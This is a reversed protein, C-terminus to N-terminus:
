CGHILLFRNACCVHVGDAAVILDKKRETGDVFEIIGTDADVDAVEASLTIKAPRTKGDPEEAIRRLENHLDVRHFYWQEDGYKQVFDPLETEIVTELSDGKLIDTKKSIVGEAKTFDFGWYRCIRAANPCVAIAAGVENKFKSREFIEVEHGAKRLGIAAALGAIGAGVVGVELSIDDPRPAFAGERIPGSYKAGVDEM